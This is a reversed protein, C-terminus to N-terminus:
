GMCEVLYFLSNALAKFQSSSHILPKSFNAATGVFVPVVNQNWTTCTKKDRM